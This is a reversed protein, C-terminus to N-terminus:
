ERTCSAKEEKRARRREEIISFRKRENKREQIGSMGQPMILSATLSFIRM